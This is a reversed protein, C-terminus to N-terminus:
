QYTYLGCVVHVIYLVTFHRYNIDIEGERKGRTRETEAIKQSELFCEM